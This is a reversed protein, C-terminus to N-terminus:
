IGFSSACCSSGPQSVKVAGGEENLAFGAGRLLDAFEAMGGSFGPISHVALATHNLNYGNALM